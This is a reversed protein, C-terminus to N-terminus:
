VGSVLSYTGKLGTITSRLMSQRVGHVGYSYLITAIDSKIYKINIYRAFINM